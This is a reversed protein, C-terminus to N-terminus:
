KSSNHHNKTSSLSPILSFIDKVREPIDFVVPLWHPKKYHRIRKAIPTNSLINGDFAYVFINSPFMMIKKEALLECLARVAKKSVNSWLIINKAKQHKLYVEQHGKFGKKYSLEAFTLTGYEKIENLIQNKLKM